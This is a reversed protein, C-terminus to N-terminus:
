QNNRVSAYLNDIMKALPPIEMGLTNQIKKSSITGNNPRSVMLSQSDISELLNEDFTFKKMVTRNFEYKSINENCGINYVGDCKKELLGRVFHCIVDVHVPNFYQDAPSQMKKRNKVNDLLQMFYNKTERVFPMYGFIVSPRLIVSNNSDNVMKEAEIKTSIYYNTPSVPALEDCNGEPTNYVAYTSFFVMKSTPFMEILNKTALVNARYCDNKNNECIDTKTIAATHIIIDFDYNTQLTKVSEQSILDITYDTHMGDSRSTGVIEWPTTKKLFESIQSGVLGTTGTILVSTM